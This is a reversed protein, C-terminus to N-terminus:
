KKWCVDYFEEKVIKKFKEWDAESNITWKKIRKWEGEKDKRWRYFALVTKANKYRSSKTAAIATWWKDSKRFTQTKVVDLSEHIPPEEDKDGETKEVKKKPKIEKKKPEEAKEPKSPEEVESELKEELEKFEGEDYLLNCVDHVVGYKTNETLLYEDNEYECKVTGWHLSMDWSEGCLACTGKLGKEINIDSLEIKKNKEILEKIEKVSYKDLANDMM